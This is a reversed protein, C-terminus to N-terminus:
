KSRHGANKDSFRNYYLLLAVVEALKATLVLTGTIVLVLVESEIIVSRVPLRACCAVAVYCLWGVAAETRQAGSIGLSIRVELGNWGANFGLTVIITQFM